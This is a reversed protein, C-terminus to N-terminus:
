QVIDNKIRLASIKIGIIFCLGGLLYGAIVDSPFHLGLYLRSFGIALILITALATILATHKTYKKCLLFALFGYLAMAFMAHGSPFSSSTEIFSPILGSPRMRGVLMKIAYSAAGAGIIAVAFGVAYAKYNKSLSLFLIVMGTIALVTATNGLFTIGDFLHVFFPTRVGLLMNEFWLDGALIYNLM